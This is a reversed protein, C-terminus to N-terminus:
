HSLKLAILQLSSNQLQINIFYLGPEYNSGFSVKNQDAPLIEVQKGVADYIVISRKEDSIKDFDLEFTHNSPNPYVHMIDSAHIPLDQIFLNRNCLSNDCKGLYDGHNIHAQAASYSVCLSHCTGENSFHAIWVKNNGCKWESIIDNYLPLYHCDPMGDGNNDIADDGGPCLEAEDAVGDCDEDEIALFNYARVIGRNSGSATSYPAASAVISGDNSLSVRIGSWEFDEKGNISVGVQVWSNSAFQYIRTQGRYMGEVSSGSAGAALTLGDASLSVSEGLYDEDAEGKIDSGLQIWNGGILKYVRVRGRYLGEQSYLDEGKAVISGDSSLSVGRGSIDNDFEGDIDSGQQIWTGGINKFVRVHGRDVGAGDNYLASIAVTSGDNSLEIKYGSYDSDAEGIIDSGIQIWSNGINEYVRVFGRQMGAGQLSSVALISGDNSLSVSYGFYINPSEGIITAGIQTWTGGQFQYVRFLGSSSGNITNGFGGIALVSGDFSLSVSYGTNEADSEGEIDSGQQVWTGGVNRFVRVHGRNFGHESNQHAGAAITTGDGSISLGIGYQDYDGEGLLEQGLQTWQGLISSTSICVAFCYIFFKIGIQIIFYHFPSSIKKM